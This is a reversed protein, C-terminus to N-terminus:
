FGRKNAPLESRHIRVAGRKIKQDIEIAGAKIYNKVTNKHYGMIDAYEQITYYEKDEM